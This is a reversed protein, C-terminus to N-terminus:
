VKFHIEVYTAHETLSYQDQKLEFCKSCAATIHKGIIGKRISAYNIYKKCNIIKGEACPWLDNDIAPRRRFELAM